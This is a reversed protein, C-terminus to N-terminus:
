DDRGVFGLNYGFADHPGVLLVLEGNARRGTAAPTVEHAALWATSATIDNSRHIAQFPGPGRADMADQTPGPGYAEGVVVQSQGFTYMAMNAKIIIGDQTTPPPGGLVRSYAEVMGDLNTGAIYIREIGLIGNPHPAREPVQRQRAELDSLHQVFVLPPADEGVLTALLWELRTGSPTTRARPMPDTVEVGRGRMAAVDAALDDSALVIWRLGGGAAAYATLDARAREPDEVAVLELHQTEHYVIASRTGTGELAGTEYVHFGLRTYQAIASQVDPVVIVLHDVNTLM